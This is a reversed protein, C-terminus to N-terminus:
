RLAKPMEAVNEWEDDGEHYRSVCTLNGEM